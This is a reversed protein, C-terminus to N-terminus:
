SDDEVIVSVQAGDPQTNLFVRRTQFSTQIHLNMSERSGSTCACSQDVNAVKALIQILRNHSRADLYMRLSSSTPM